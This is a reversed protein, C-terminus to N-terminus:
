RQYPLAERTPPQLHIGTLSQSITGLLSEWFVAATQCWDSLHSYVMLLRLENVISWTPKAEKNWRPKMKASQM